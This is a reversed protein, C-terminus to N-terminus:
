HRSISKSLMKDRPKHFRLPSFPGPSISGGRSPLSSFSLNGVSAASLTTERMADDMVGQIHPANAAPTTAASAQM